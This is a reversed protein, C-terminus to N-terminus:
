SDKCPKLSRSISICPTRSLIPIRYFPFKSCFLQVDMRSLIPIKIKPIEPLIKCFTCVWFENEIFHSNIGFKTDKLTLIPDWKIPFVRYGEDFLWSRDFLSSFCSWDFRSSNSVKTMLHRISSFHQISRFYIGKPNKLFRIKPTGFVILFIRRSRASFDPWNSWTM